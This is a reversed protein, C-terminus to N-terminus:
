GRAGFGRKEPVESKNKKNERYSELKKEMESMSKKKYDEEVDNYDEEVDNYDEEVEEECKCDEKKEKCKECDGLSDKAEEYDDMGNGSKRTRGEEYDDMGNGSKRTRGEDFDLDDLDFDDLDLDDEEEEAYNESHNALLEEADEPSIRVAKGETTNLTIEKKLDMLIEIPVDLTGESEFDLLIVDTESNDSPASLVNLSEQYSEKLYKSVYDAIKM